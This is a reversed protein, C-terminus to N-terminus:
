WGCQFANLRLQPHDIEFPECCFFAEVDGEDSSLKGIYVDLGDRVANEAEVAANESIQRRILDVVSDAQGWYLSNIADTAKTMHQCLVNFLREFLPRLPSNKKAGMAELFVDKSPQGACIIVFSTSSSNTVFDWRIKM